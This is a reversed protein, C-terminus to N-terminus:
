FVRREAFRENGFTDHYNGMLVSESVCDQSQKIRTLLNNKTKIQKKHLFNQTTGNKYAM